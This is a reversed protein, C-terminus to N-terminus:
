LPKKDLKLGSVVSSSLTEEYAARYWARVRGTESMGAYNFEQTPILPYGSWTWPSRIAAHYRAINMEGRWWGPGASYRVHRWSWGQAAHNPLRRYRDLGGGISQYRDLRPIDAASPAPHHPLGAAWNLARLALGPPELPRLALTLRYHLRRHAEARTDHETMWIRWIAPALLLFFLLVILILASEAMIAGRDNREIFRLTTL